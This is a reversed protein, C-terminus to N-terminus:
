HYMMVESLGPHLLRAGAFGELWIWGQLLLLLM